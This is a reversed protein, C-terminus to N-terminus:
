RSEVGDSSISVSTERGIRPRERDPAPDLVIIDGRRLRSWEVNKVSEDRQLRTVRARAGTVEEGPGMGGCLFSELKGKSPIADSVVRLRVAGRREPVSDVIRVGDKRLVLYSFTLGQRRLGAVRAVPVLWGPLDVPLDEHCWESEHTLAPCPDAHLCPAFITAGSSSVRDRVRHLHRSRERLAPEVVVLSGRADVRRDLLSRLLAAHREAREHADLGVDLESLVNGLLVVDFQESPIEDLSAAITRLRIEISSRGVREKILARGVDLAQTDSDTWTANVSGRFGSAELARVLGWTMAGLGAGVDLVRLQSDLRLAGVAVLERVAAAAKPVDRAFAFGLRGAGAEEMTARARTPDNYAESLAAVRAGLRAADHSTPWGRRRAVADLADRWDDELSRVLTLGLM